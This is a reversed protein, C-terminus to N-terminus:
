RAKKKKNDGDGSQDVKARAPKADDAIAERNTVSLIDGNPRVHITVSDGGTSQTNFQYYEYTTRYVDKINASSFMRDITERVPAPLKDRDLQQRQQYINGDPNAVVDVRGDATDLTAVYYGDGAAPYLHIEKVKAGDYRKTALERVKDAKDSTSMDTKSLDERKLEAENRIDRLRGAPDLRLDYMKGGVDLQVNYSTVVTREIDAPSKFLGSVAHSAAQPMQKASVPTGSQLFDGSDTVLATSDGDKTVVRVENVKVGNIKRSGTIETSTADPYQAKLAQDVAKNRQASATGCFLTAIACGTILFRKM